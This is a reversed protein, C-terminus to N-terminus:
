KDNILLTSWNNDILSKINSLNKNYTTIFKLKMNDQRNKNQLLTSIERYGNLNNNLWYTTTARMQFKKIESHAKISNVVPRGPNNPKHIKPLFYLHLTKPNAHLLNKGLKETVLKEKLLAKIADNIMETHHEAPDFNPLSYFIADNLQRNAENIYDVVDIIVVTGGKDANTIIIDERKRLDNM